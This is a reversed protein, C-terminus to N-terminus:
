KKFPCFIPRPEPCIDPLIEAPNSSFVTKYYVNTDEHGNAVIDQLVQHGRKCDKCILSEVSTNVIREVM